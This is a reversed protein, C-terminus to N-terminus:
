RKGGSMNENGGDAQHALTKKEAAEFKAFGSSRYEKMTGESKEIILAEVGDFSEVLELGKKAGAVSIATSLADATMGDPAIVTASPVNDAPRGTRPDIIHSYRRGGIEFFRHYNGSTSVAADRAEITTLFHGQEDPREPDLVGVRWGAGSPNAGILRMNGGVNVIGGKIGCRRMADAALDVGYGKAIGGLDIEMGAAALAATCATEDLLLKDTGILARAAALEAEDPLSGREACKRWLRRLPTYTIDFANDTRATFSVSNKLVDFTARDIALAKGPESRNLRGIDSAPNYDSMLGNVRDLAQRAADAARQAEDRDTTAITLEAETGMVVFRFIYKGDDCAVPRKGSRGCSM